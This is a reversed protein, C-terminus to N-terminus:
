ANTIGGHSIFYNIELVPVEFGDGLERAVKPLAACFKVPVNMRRSVENAYPMSEKLLEATTDRGLNTCNVIGTFPLKCAAEIERLVLATDDATRTLPRCANIVALMDYDGEAKLAPVYRGLALAGRDDGGVDIVAHLSRDETIRYASGPLSPLDVNSLAFDSVILDIGLKDAVDRSDGSRFYPNVIDLDALAIRGDPFLKRCYAAYAIAVTSKGSGYHGCFLTVREPSELAPM